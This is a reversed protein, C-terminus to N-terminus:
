RRVFNRNQYEQKAKERYASSHDNNIYIQILEIDDYVAWYLRDYVIM